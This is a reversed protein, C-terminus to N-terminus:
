SASAGFDYIDDIESETIDDTLRTIETYADPVEGVIVTSMVPFSQKINVREIRSPLLISIDFCVTFYIRYLTQNIGIETFDNEFYANFGNSIDTYISVDPGRGSLFNIGSINGLPIKVCMKEYYSVNKLIESVLLTRATLLESTNVNLSSVSGDNKTTM